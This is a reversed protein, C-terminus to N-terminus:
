IDKSSKTTKVYSTKWSEETISCHSSVLNKSLQDSCKLINILIRLTLSIEM